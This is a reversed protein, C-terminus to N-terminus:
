ASEQQHQSASHQPLASVPKMLIGALPKSDALSHPSCVVRLKHAKSAMCANGNFLCPIHATQHRHNSNQAPGGAEPWAGAALMQLRPPADPSLNSTCRCSPVLWTGRLTLSPLHKILQGDNTHTTLACALTSAPPMCTLGAHM